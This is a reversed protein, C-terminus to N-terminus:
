DGLHESNMESASDEPTENCLHESDDASLIDGADGSECVASEPNGGSRPAAAVKVMSHRIVLDGLRYGRLLEFSITNPPIENTQESVAAEHLHPDFKQGVAPITEIGMSSFIEELQRNVLVIGEFFRGFEGNESEPLKAAFDLARQLNDLVPILEAALEATQNRFHEEREREARIKFNEFDRARRNSIAMLESREEEIRSVKERLAALEIELVAAERGAEAAISREREACDNEESLPRIISKAEKLFDPPNGDDFGQEIEIITTDATIHLDKERAELQRIFDDVSLSEDSETNDTVIKFDDTEQDSNM